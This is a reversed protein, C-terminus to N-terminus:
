RGKNFLFYLALLLLAVTGGTLTAVTKASEEFYGAISKFGETMDDAADAAVKAAQEAIGGALKAVYAGAERVKEIPSDAAKEVIEKAHQLRDYVRKLYDHAADGTLNPPLTWDDPGEIAELRVDLGMLADRLEAWDNQTAM